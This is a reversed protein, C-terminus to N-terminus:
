ELFISIIYIPIDFHRRQSMTHIFLVLLREQKRSHHKHVHTAQTAYAAYAAYSAQTANAASKSEVADYFFRYYVIRLHRRNIQFITEKAIVVCPKLILKKRCLM